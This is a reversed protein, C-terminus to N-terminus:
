GDLEESSRIRSSPSRTRRPGLAHLSHRQGDDIQEAALTIRGPRRIQCRGLDCAAEADRARPYVRVRVLEPRHPHPGPALRPQPEVRVPDLLRQRRVGSTISRGPPADTAAACSKSAV